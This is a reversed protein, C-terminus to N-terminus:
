INKRWYDLIRSLCNEVNEEQSWGLALLKVNDGVKILEEIPRFKSSDVEISISTRAYNKLIELVKSLLFANGSCVNYAEGPIGHSAIKILARVADLVPLM